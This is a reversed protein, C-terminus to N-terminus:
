AGEDSAEIGVARSSDPRKRPRSSTSGWTTSARPLATGSCRGPRVRTLSSAYGEAGEPVKFVGGMRVWEDAFTSVGLMVQLYDLFASSVGKGNPWCTATCTLSTPSMSLGKLTLM